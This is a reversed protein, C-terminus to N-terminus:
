HAAVPSLTLNSSPARDRFAKLRALRADRNPLSKPVILLDTHGHPYQGVASAFTEIGEPLIHHIRTPHPFHYLEFLDFATAVKSLFSTLNIGLEVFARPTVEIIASFGGPLGLDVLQQVLFPEMGETDIKILQHRSTPNAKFYEPFTTSRVLYNLTQGGEGEKVVHASDLNGPTTSFLMPGDMLSVAKAVHEVDRGQLQNVEINYPIVRGAISPDFLKVRVDLGFCRALNACRIGVLGVFAGVDLVDVGLGQDTLWQLYAYPSYRPDDTTRLQEKTLPYVHGKQVVGVYHNLLSARRM